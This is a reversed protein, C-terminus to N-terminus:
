IRSGHGPRVDVGASFLHTRLKIPSQDTFLFVSSIAVAPLGAEFAARCDQYGGCGGSLVVPVRVAEQVARGHELDFGLRTGDRDIATLLIEGCGMAEARRAMELPTWPTATRGGEVMVRGSPVGTYDISAVICQSGFVRVAEAVLGPDTVLATNLTVKDAGARLLDYIADISRINGGVTFPMFIERSMEEIVGLFASRDEDPPSLDLIIFEDAGYDNYIRATSVPAGGLRRTEHFRVYKVLCGNQYLFKPIIRRKVM